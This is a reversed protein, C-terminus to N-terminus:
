LSKYKRQVALYYDSATDKLNTLRDLEKKCEERNYRNVKKKQIREVKVEVPKPTTTTTIVAEPTTTTSTVEAKVETTTTTTAEESKIETTTVKTEVNEM